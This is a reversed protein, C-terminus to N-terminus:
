FYSRGMGTIQIMDRVDGTRSVVLQGDRSWSYSSVRQMDAFFTLQKPKGGSLPFEYVNLPRLDDGMLCTVDGSPSWRPLYVTDKISFDVLRNPPGGNIPLLGLARGHDNLICAIQAGDPSPAPFSASYNTIQTAQGGGIPIRWIGEDISQYVVWKRDPTCQPWYFVGDGTSLQVQNSGDINMRWIAMSGGANSGYVIYRNDSSVCPYEKLGPGSTLQRQNEGDADMIWIDHTTRLGTSYVIKGDGAWAVQVIPSDRSPFPIRHATNQVGAKMVWIDTASVSRASLISGNAADFAVGIYDYADNTIRRATGQPYSVLWLQYMQSDRDAASIVLGTGDKIWAEEAVRIWQDSGIRSIAGNEVSVAALYQISQTNGTVGCAITKGAPSWAPFMWGESDDLAALVREGLGDTDAIVLERLGARVFVFQKGDPSFSIGRMVGDMVKVPSGGGIAARFLEGAGVVMAVYYIQTTDKSFALGTFEAQVPGVLRHETGTETEKVWLTTGSENQTTYAFLRGGDSAAVVQVDGSGTVKEVRLDAASSFHDPRKRALDRVIGVTAASVLILAGFVLMLNRANASRFWGARDRPRSVAIGARKESRARRAVPGLESRSEVLDLSNGIHSAEIQVPIPELDRLLEVASQYREKPDKATARDIVAKIREGIENDLGAIPEPDERVLSDLFAPLTDGHFPRRGTLMEYMVVGLSFVDTRADLDRGSAQEPSMYYVTGLVTGPITRTAEISNSNPGANFLETRTLKALGFDVVKVLGDGRIMINEPKIDRHVVGSSHAAALARTIQIAITLTEILTLPRQMRDRLTEGEIYEVAIYSVGGERGIDHITVINPHNLASTARAETIFRRLTDGRSAVGAALFKLAVKRGLRGDEALYVKGMGGHGLVDLIKFPGVSSGVRSEEAEEEALEELLRALGSSSSDLIGGSSADEALLRKVAYLVNSDSCHHVLFKEREEPKQELAAHFLTEIEEWQETGNV